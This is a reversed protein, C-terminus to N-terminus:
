GRSSAGAAHAFGRNLDGGAAEIGEDIHDALENDGLGHDVLVHRRETRAIMAEDAMDRLRALNHALQLIQGHRHPHDGDAAQELLHRAQDTIQGVLEAFLDIQLDATGLRLQVAIDDVGDAIRQDVHDAVRGVM